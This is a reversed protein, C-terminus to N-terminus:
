EYIKSGKSMIQSDESRNSVQIRNLIWSVNQHGALKSGKSIGARLRAIATPQVHMHRSGAVQMSSPSKQSYYTHLLSALKPTASTTPETNNITDLYTTFCKKLGTLYQIDVEGVRVQVDEVFANGFKIVDNKLGDQKEMIGLLIALNEGGSDHTTNCNHDDQDCYIDIDKSITGLSHSQISPSPSLEETM